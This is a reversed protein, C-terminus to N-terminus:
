WWTDSTKKPRASTTTRCLMRKILVESLVHGVFEVSRADLVDSVEDSMDSVEDSMEPFHSDNTDYM